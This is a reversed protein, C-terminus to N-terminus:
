GEKDHRRLWAEFADAVQLAPSNTPQAALQRHKKARLEALEDQQVSLGISQNPVVEAM